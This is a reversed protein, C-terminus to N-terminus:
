CSRIVGIRELKAYRRKSVHCWVSEGFGIEEIEIVDEPYEDDYWCSKLVTREFSAKRDIIRFLKLTCFDKEQNNRAWFWEGVLVYKNRLTFTGIVRPEGCFANDKFEIENLIM